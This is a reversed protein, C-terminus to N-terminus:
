RWSAVLISLGGGCICDSEDWASDAEQVKQEEEKMVAFHRGSRIGSELELETAM